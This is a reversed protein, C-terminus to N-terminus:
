NKPYKYKNILRNLYLQRVIEEPSSKKDSYIMKEQEGKSNSKLYYKGDDKQYTSSELEQIESESFLSLDNKINSFIKNLMKYKITICNNKFFFLM